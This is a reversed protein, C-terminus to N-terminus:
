AGAVTKSVASVFVFDEPLHADRADGYVSPYEPTSHSRSFASQQVKAESEM